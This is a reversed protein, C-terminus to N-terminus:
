LLRVVAQHGVGFHLATRRGTNGELGGRENLLDPNQDLLEGVRVADGKGAAELLAALPQTKRHIQQKLTIWNEAGKERALAHQVDRLGPNSPGEPYARRFRAHAEPDNAALAKLLRKAVKRLNDLSSM